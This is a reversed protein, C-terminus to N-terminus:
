ILPIGRSALLVLLPLSADLLFHAGMLYPLVTPRKDIVIGTWFAFLLFKVALWLNYRADLQFAFFMHQISLVSGVILIVSWRSMGLVRMRPAVYGWYIPLETLAHSLPMLIFLPYVAALPLPQFLLGNPYNASGWLLRALLIGPPMAVLATGALAVIAWRLDVKWNCPSFFYLDRLRLNESRGLRMLFYLCAINTITVFWLWWASSAKVPDELDLVQYIGALALLLTFSLASRLALMTLARLKLTKSFKLAALSVPLNRLITDTM